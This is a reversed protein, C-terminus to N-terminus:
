GAVPCQCLREDYAKKWVDDTSISSARWLANVSTMPTRPITPSTATSISSARWLANVCELYGGDELPWDLLFPALGGCPM